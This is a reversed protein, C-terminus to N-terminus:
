FRASLGIKFTRGLPNGIFPEYNYDERAFPPDRDFINLISGNLTLGELVQLQATLDATVFKSIDAGTTVVRQLDNNFAFPGSNTDARQDRLGGTYNGQFRVDLPGVGFDVFAQGKDEPVPYLASQFNLLGVGDFGQQVVTGEVTIAGISNEMVYTVSGGIRQCNSPSFTVYVLAALARNLRDDKEIVCVRLTSLWNYFHTPLSLLFIVQVYDFYNHSKPIPPPPPFKFIM